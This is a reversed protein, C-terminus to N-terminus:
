QWYGYSKSFSPSYYEWAARVNISEDPGMAPLFRAQSLVRSWSKGLNVKPQSDKLILFRSAAGDESVDFAVAVQAPVTTIYRGMARSLRQHGGLVQPGLYDWGATPHTYGSHQVLTLRFRGDRRSGVLMGNLGVRKPRDNIMAPRVKAQRALPTLRGNFDLRRPETRLIRFHVVRGQRNVDAAFHLIFNPTPLRELQHQLVAVLPRPGRNLDAAQASDQASVVPTLILCIVVVQWPRWSM